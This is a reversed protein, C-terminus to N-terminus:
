FEMIARIDKEISDAYASMLQALRSPSRAPSSPVQPIEKKDADYVLTLVPRSEQSGQVSATKKNDTM